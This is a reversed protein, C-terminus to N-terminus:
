EAELAAVKTELTEIKTIAEQLAATLLPVLKSQDIGQMVPITEGKDNLKNDGVSVGDPLDDDDKWVEVEDKTGAVAEPVVTAAEHALFGDVNASDEEDAIWSFRKPSLQKVRTISDTIDTVNEKLRYDSSTNYATSSSSLSIDGVAVAQRFFQMTAGDGDRGVKVAVGGDRHFHSGGSGNLMVQPVHNGIPNTNTGGVLLNGSADLRMRQSGGTEFVIKGDGIEIDENGDHSQLQVVGSSHIGKFIFNTGSNQIAGLSTGDKRFNAINGDSGIRNLEIAAASAAFGAYGESRVVAGSGSSLSWPTTSTGGVTLHGSGDVRLKSTGDDRIDFIYNPATGQADVVMVNSNNDGKVNLKTFPTENIGVNGSGDVTVADGLQALEFAKSTM